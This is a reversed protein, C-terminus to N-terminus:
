LASFVNPLLFVFFRIPVFCSILNGLKAQNFDEMFRHSWEKFVNEKSAFSHSLPYTGSNFSGGWSERHLKDIFACFTHNLGFFIFTNNEQQVQKKVMWINCYSHWIVFIMSYYINQMADFKVTAHINCVLEWPSFPLWPFLWHKSYNLVPKSWWGERQPLFVKYTKDWTKFRM